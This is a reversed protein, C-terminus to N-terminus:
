EMNSDKVIYDIIATIYSVHVTKGVEGSQKTYKRLRGGKNVFRTERSYRKATDWIGEFENFPITGRPEGFNLRVRVYLDGNQYHEFRAKFEKGYKLTKFERYEKLEDQLKEWFEQFNM